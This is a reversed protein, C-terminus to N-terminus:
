AAAILPLQPRDFEWFMYKIVFLTPDFIDNEFVIRRYYYLPYQENPYWTKVIRVIQALAALFQLRGQRSEIFNRPVNIPLIRHFRVHNEDIPIEPANMAGDIFQM